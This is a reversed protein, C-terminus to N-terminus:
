DNGKLSVNGCDSRTAFGYLRITAGSACVKSASGDFAFEIAANDAGVDDIAATRVVNYVPRRIPYNPNLTGTGTQPNIGNVKQLKALNVGTGRRDDVGTQDSNKQAIWQAISFPIIRANSGALPAGDHEQIGDGTVICPFQADLEADTLDDAMGMQELWFGRTGSGEQPLVPVVNQKPLPGGGDPDVQTVNCRYINRLTVKTSPDGAGGKPLNRGDLPSADRVAWAVADTAFPIFTLTSGTESPGRSSRAFEFVSGSAKLASIGASSGNPRPIGSVGDITPLNASGRADYSGVFLSGNRKATASVGNMVDQTTDSGVGDLERDLPPSSPDASASTGFLPLLSATVAVAAGAAAIKSLRM